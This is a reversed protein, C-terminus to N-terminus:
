GSTKSQWVKMAEDFVKDGPIGKEMTLLARRGSKYVIPIDLWSQRLLLELNTNREAESSSLAILFYGDTIRAPIGILPNGPAAESGKLAVRLVSEIGGGEFNGLFIMEIIHSAPLTTDAYCEVEFPFIVAMADLDRAMAFRRGAKWAWVQPSIYYLTRITGGGKVSLGQERLAAALRLNFGPYDVFCVARPRYERLWRLTENFLDRFFSYNRLVEVIGVVSSATLDYLLQAGAEALRPGGLAAVALEPHSKRLERVVRAAHEDGSHEGAVILLDVRGRVPPPFSLPLLSSTSM